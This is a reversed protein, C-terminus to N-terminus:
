IVLHPMNHYSASYRYQVDNHLYPYQPPVFRLLWQRIDDVLRGEMEQIFVGVTSHKSIINVTGDRVQSKKVTDAVDIM